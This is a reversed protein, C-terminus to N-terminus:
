WWIVPQLDYPIISICLALCNEFLICGALFDCEEQQRSILAGTGRLGICDYVCRRDPTDWKFLCLLPSPHCDGVNISSVKIDSGPILGSTQVMPDNELLAQLEDADSAGRAIEMVRALLDGAMMTQGDQRLGDVMEEASAPGAGNAALEFGLLGIAAALLLGGAVVKRLMYATELM